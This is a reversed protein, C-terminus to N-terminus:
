ARFLRRLHHTWFLITASLKDMLTEEHLCKIRSKKLLHRHRFNKHDFAGRDLAYAELVEKNSLVEDILPISRKLFFRGFSSCSVCSDKQPVLAEILFDEGDNGLDIAQSVYAMGLARKCGHMAGMRVLNLGSHAWNKGKDCTVINQSMTIFVRELGTPYFSDASSTSYFIVHYTFLFGFLESVNKMEKCNFEEPGDVILPGLLQLWTMSYASHDACLEILRVTSRDKMKDRIFDFHGAVYHTVEHFVIFSLYATIASHVIPFLSENIDKVTSNLGKACIILMKACLNIDICIYVINGKRVVRATQRGEDDFGIFVGGIKGCKQMAEMQIDIFRFFRWSDRGYKEEWETAPIWKNFPWSLPREESFHLHYIGNRM